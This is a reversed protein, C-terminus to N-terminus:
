AEERVTRAEDRAEYVLLLTYIATAACMFGFPIIALSTDQIITGDTYQVIGAYMATGLYGSIMSCIFMAVINAYVKNRLDIVAYILLLVDAAALLNFTSIPIM